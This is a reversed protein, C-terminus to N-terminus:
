GQENASGIFDDHNTRVFCGDPTLINKIYSLIEEALFTVLIKADCSM